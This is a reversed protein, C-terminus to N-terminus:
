DFQRWNPWRSNCQRTDGATLGRSFNLLAMKREGLLRFSNEFM